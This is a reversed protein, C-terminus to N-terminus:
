NKGSYNGWIGLRTSIKRWFEEVDAESSGRDIALGKIAEAVVLGRIVSKLGQIAYVEPVFKDSILSLVLDGPKIFESIKRSDLPFDIKGDPGIVGFECAVVIRMFKGVSMRPRYLYETGDSPDDCDIVCFTPEDSVLISNPIKVRYKSLKVKGSFVNDRAGILGLGMLCVLFDGWRLSPAVSYRFQKNERGACTKRITQEMRARVPVSTLQCFRKWVRRDRAVLRIWSCLQGMVLLDRPGLWSFIEVLIENPLDM